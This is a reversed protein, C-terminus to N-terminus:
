SGHSKRRINVEFVYRSDLYLENIMEAIEFATKNTFLTHWAQHQKEPLMSINWDQDCGGISRPRRHHRTLKKAEM